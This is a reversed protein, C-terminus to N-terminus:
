PYHPSVNVINHIDDIDSSAARGSPVTSTSSQRGQTGDIPITSTSMTVHRQNPIRTTKTATTTPHHPRPTTPNDNAPDTPVFPRLPSVKTSLCCYLVVVDDNNTM